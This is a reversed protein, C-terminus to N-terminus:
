QASCPPSQITRKEPSGSRTGRLLIADDTGLIYSWYFGDYVMWLSEGHDSYRAGEGITAYPALRAAAVRFRAAPLDRRRPTYEIECWGTVLECRIDINEELAPGWTWFRAWTAKKGVGGAIPEEKSVPAPLFGVKPEGDAGADWRAYAFRSEYLKAIQGGKRAAFLPEFAEAEAQPVHYGWLDPCSVGALSEPGCETPYFMGGAQAQLAEIADLVSDDEWFWDDRLGLYAGM